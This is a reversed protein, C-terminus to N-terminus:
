QGLDCFIDYLEAIQEMLYARRSCMPLQHAEARLANLQTSIHERVSYIAIRQNESIEDLRKSEDMWDQIDKWFSDNPKM